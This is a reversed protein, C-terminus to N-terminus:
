QYQNILDKAKTAIESAPNIEIAKNWYSIAESNKNQNVTVIGLNFHAIQHQPALTLAEKMYKEANPYDQLSFYCVGLDVLVDPENTHTKLYEKYKVIAREYYGSDNLLHALRLLTEHDNPNTKLAQEMDNIRQVSSLDVSSHNHDDPMNSSVNTNVAPIPDDFIGSSFIIFVGVIALIGVLYYFKTVSIEKGTEKKPVSHNKKNEKKSQVKTEKKQIPSKKEEKIEPKEEISIEKSESNEILAGCVDCTENHPDNESGCVECMKIIKKENM